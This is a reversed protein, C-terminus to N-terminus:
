NSTVAWNLAEGIMDSYHSEGKTNNFSHDYGSKRNYFLRRKKSILESVLFDATDISASTDETGHVIYLYANTKLLTKEPAYDMLSLWYRPSLGWYQSSHDPDASMMQWKQIERLIDINGQDATSSKKKKLRSITDFLPGGGGGASSIVHTVQPVEAALAAAFTAGESHGYVIIKEPNLSKSRLLDYLATKLTQTWLGATFQQRYAETCDDPGDARDFNDFTNVTPKEVALIGYKGSVLEAISVQSGRSMIVDDKKYFLSSCGSGQISVILPANKSSAPLYYYQIFGSDDVYKEFLFRKGIIQLPKKEESALHRSDKSVCSVTCSLIVSLFIFSRM